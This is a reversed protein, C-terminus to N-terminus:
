RSHGDAQVFEGVATHFDRAYPTILVRVFVASHAIM